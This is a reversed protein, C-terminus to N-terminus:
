EDGDHGGDKLRATMECFDSKSEAKCRQYLGELLRAFEQRDQESLDETLWEYFAAEIHAKSSKLGEAKETAYLLQSRGDGPNEERTLYGKAELNATQRAVAGKDLGTIKCVGAQTIGPNKRIAHLTDLEGSGVGEERLTRVTFKSVERAIKTIERKTIDM